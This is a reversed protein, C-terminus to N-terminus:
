EVANAASKIGPPVFAKIFIPQDAYFHNKTEREFWTNKNEIMIAKILRIRIGLIYLAAQM